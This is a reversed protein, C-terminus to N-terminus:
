QVERWQESLVGMRNEKKMERDDGAGGGENMRDM